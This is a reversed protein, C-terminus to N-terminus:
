WIYSDNLQTIDKCGIQALTTDVEKMLLELVLEAGADGMAGLGYMFSRGTFTFNAGLAYGKIIDSGNRIGSDLMITSGPRVNKTIRELAEVSSPASELQRGGHNSVIFGNAGVRMAADASQTSLIGKIVFVGDWSDRIKKILDESLGSSTQLVQAANLTQKTKQETLYPIMNEFRPVGNILTSVTWTPKKMLDILIKPNLKFPLTFNNRLDRPRIAPEPIDVTLVLIKVGANKARKILDFCIEEKGPVYLQFWTNEPAIQCIKEITSTGVASLLYPINRKKALKALTTDANPWILNGLGMPSIGIPADYIHGFLNVKQTRNSVDRLYEPQLTIKSFGLRNRRINDENGAGGDLYDFALKPIRTKAKSRLEDLTLFNDKNMTIQFKFLPPPLAKAM